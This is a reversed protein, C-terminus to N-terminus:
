DPPLAFIVVIALQGTLPWGKQIWTAEDGSITVSHKSERWM